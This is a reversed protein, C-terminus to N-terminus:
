DFKNAPIVPIFGQDVLRRIENNQADKFKGVSALSLNKAESELDMFEPKVWASSALIRQFTAQHESSLMKLENKSITQAQLDVEQQIQACFLFHDRMLYEKSQRIYHIEAKKSRFGHEGIANMKEQISAEIRRTDRAHAMVSRGLYDTGLFLEQMYSTGQTGLIGPYFMQMGVFHMLPTVGLYDAMRPVEWDFKDGGIVTFKKQYFMYTRGQIDRAKQDAKFERILKTLLETRDYKAAIM